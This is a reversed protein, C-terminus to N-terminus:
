FVEPEAKAIMKELEAIDEEQGEYPEWRGGNDDWMYAGRKAQVLKEELEEKTDSTERVGTADATFYNVIKEVSDTDFERQRVKYVPFENIAPMIVDANIECKLGPIEYTETWAELYTIVDNTESNEKGNGETVITQQSASPGKIIRELEGDAKNVVAADEPTKQCGCFILLVIFIFSFIIRKRM